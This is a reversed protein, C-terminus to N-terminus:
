QRPRAWELGNIQRLDGRKIHDDWPELKPGIAWINDFVYLGTEGFVNNFMFEAIEMEIGERDDKAVSTQGAPIKEELFPHMSGYNFVSKFTYNGLGHIPPLRIGVSHCSAGKYTRGVLTPRFASYPIRQFDVNIGIDDWMQAIAECAEVESPANRVATTLTIDFGDPYGAETLLQKALDPDFDWTMEAPLRAEDPGGWDRLALSHGFGRLLTDILLQRDIAISLALRVKRADDWEESTIDANGSVWPLSPDYNDAQEETGAGVHMQGYFNLGAQGADPVQMLKAGEVSEVLPLSDLAMAFTDLNGTQFGAVRASEEPIEWLTLESFFPTRRWHDETASLRWFEGTRWEEIAWPGTAATNRNTEEEGVADHQKKSTVYAVSSRPTGLLENVIIDSFTEGTNLIISHDDPTEISGSENFWVSKANQARTHRESESIQGMSWIVDEATMEGYGQHFQVGKRLNFTWTKFDTSVSWSEALMPELAGNTENAMGLSETIGTANVIFIQPQGTLRPHSMFPGMDKLGLNITGTPKVAPESSAPIPTSTPVPTLTPAAPQSTAGSTAAPATTAQPATTAAPASTPQPTATASAGCAAILLLLLVASTLVMAKSFRPWGQFM